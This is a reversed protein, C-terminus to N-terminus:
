CVSDPAYGAIVQDRLQSDRFRGFRGTSAFPHHNAKIGFQHRFEVSPYFTLRFWFRTPRLRDAPQNIRDLEKRKLKLPDRSRSIYDGSGTFFLGSVPVHVWRDNEAAVPQDKASASQAEKRWIARGRRGEHQPAACPRMRTRGSSASRPTEFCSPMGDKGKSVRARVNWKASRIPARASRLTLLTAGMGLRPEDNFRKRM